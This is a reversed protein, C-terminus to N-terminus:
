APYIYWTFSQTASGGPNTATITVYVGDTDVSGLSGQITDSTIMLGIPLVDATYSSVSGSFFSVLSFYISDFETNSQDPITGSAMPPPVTVTWDFAQDAHGDDNTCTVTVNYTTTTASVNGTIVGTVDDISLGEPLNTASFVPAPSEPYTFYTSTDFSIGTELAINSRNAIMGNAVPPTGGGGSAAVCVPSCVSLGINLSM